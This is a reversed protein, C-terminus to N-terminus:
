FMLGIHNIRFLLEYSKLRLGNEAHPGVASMYTWGDNVVGPVFTRVVVVISLPPKIM